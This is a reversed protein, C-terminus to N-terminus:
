GANFPAAAAGHRASRKRLEGGAGQHQRREREEADVLRKSLDKLEHQARLSEQYKVQLRDELRGAYVITAAALILGLTLAIAALMLFRRRFQASVEAIRREADRMEGENVATVDKAIALIEAHQSMMETGIVLDGRQRQIRPGPTFIPVITSWYKDLEAALHEFPEKKDAPLTTICDRLVATTEDHTSQFDARLTEQAQASAGPLLYDRVLNGSEYLGARVRELTRERYLFDQRIRADTSELGRLTLLSDVCLIAMLILL